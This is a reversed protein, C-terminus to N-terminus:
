CKFVSSSVEHVFIKVLVEWSKCKLRSSDKNLCFLPGFLELQVQQFSRLQSLTASSPKNRRTVLQASVVRYLSGIFSCVEDPLLLAIEQMLLLVVVFECPLFTIKKLPHHRFGRCRGARVSRFAAPSMHVAFSLARQSPVLNAHSHPRCRAPSM